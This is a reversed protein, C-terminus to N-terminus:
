LTEKLQSAYLRRLTRNMPHATVPRLLDARYTFVVVLHRGQATTGFAKYRKEGGKHAAPFTLHGRQFLEEVEMPTVGHRAIHAVNHEDWDFGM